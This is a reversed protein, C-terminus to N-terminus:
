PKLIISGLSQRSQILKHADAADELKIKKFINPKIEKKKIKNFLKNSSLELEKRANIQLKPPMEESYLEVLFEPM